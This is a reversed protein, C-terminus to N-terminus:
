ITVTVNKLVKRSAGLTFKYSEDGRGLDLTTFGRSIAERTCEALLLRGPGYRSYDLDYTCMYYWARDHMVLLLAMAAIGSGVRLAAVAPITDRAGCGALDHLFERIARGRAWPALTNYTGRRMWSEERMRWLLDISADLDSGKDTIEFSVFQHDRELGRREARVRKRRSTSLGSWFDEWSTPLVIYAGPDDDYSRIALGSVQLANRDAEAITPIDLTTPGDMRRLQTATSTWLWGLHDKDVLAAATDHLDHGCFRVIGDPYRVLPLVGILEGRRDWGAACRWQIAHRRRHRWWTLVWTPHNFPTAESHRAALQSWGPALREVDHLNTLVEIRV